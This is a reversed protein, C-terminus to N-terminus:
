NTHSWCELKGYPSYWFTRRQFQTIINKIRKLIEMKQNETANVHFTVNESEKNKLSRNTKKNEKILDLRSVKPMVYDTIVM